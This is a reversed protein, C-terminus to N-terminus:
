ILFLVWDNFNYCIGSLSFCMEDICFAGSPRNFGVAMRAIKGPIVWM